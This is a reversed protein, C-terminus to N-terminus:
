SPCISTMMLALATVAHEPTWQYSLESPVTVEMPGSSQMGQRASGTYRVGDQSELSFESCGAHGDFHRPDLTLRVHRGQAYGTVEIKSYARFPGSFGDIWLWVPMGDMGGVVRYRDLEASVQGEVARGSVRGRLYEGHKALQLGPGLLVQDRFGAAQLNRAAAVSIGPRSMRFEHADDTTACGAM